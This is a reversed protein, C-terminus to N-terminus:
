PFFHMLTWENMNYIITVHGTGVIVYSKNNDYYNDNEYITESQIGM